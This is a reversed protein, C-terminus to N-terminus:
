EVTEKKIPAPTAGEAPVERTFHTAVAEGQGPHQPEWEGHSESDDSDKTSPQAPSPERQSGAHTLSSDLVPLAPESPRRPRGARGRIGKVRGLGRPSFGGEGSSKTPARGEPRVEPLDPITPSDEDYFMRDLNGISHLDITELAMAVNQLAEPREIDVSSPPPAQFAPRARSVRRRSMRAEGRGARSPQPQEASKEEIREVVQPKPAAETNLNLLPTSVSASAAESEVISAEEMPDDPQVTFGTVKVKSVGDLHQTSKYNSAVDDYKGAKLERLMEKHQEQMIARVAKEFAVEDLDEEMLHGYSKKKSAFINGGIFLHTIVHPYKTGSDETQIHFIRGAHKINHNYGTIM